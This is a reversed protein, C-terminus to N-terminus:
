TENNIKTDGTDDLVHEKGFDGTAQVGERQDCVTHQERVMLSQVNWLSLM